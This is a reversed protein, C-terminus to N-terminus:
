IWMFMLSDAHHSPFRNCQLLLSPLSKPGRALQVSRAYSAWMPPWGRGCLTPQFLNDPRGSAQILWLTFPPSCRGNGSSPYWPGCGAPPHTVASPSTDMPFDDLFLSPCNRLQALSHCAQQAKALELLDVRDAPIAAIFLSSAGNTGGAVRSTALSGCPVKLSAATNSGPALVAQPPRSMLDVVINLRGPVHVIKNNFEAIYSLQRQQHATWSDSVQLLAFTLPNHDTWM